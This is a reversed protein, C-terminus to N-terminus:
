TTNLAELGQGIGPQRTECPVIVNFDPPCGQDTKCNSKTGGADVEYPPPVGMFSIIQSLIGDLLFLAFFRRLCVYRFLVACVTLAGRPIICATDVHSRLSIIGITYFM